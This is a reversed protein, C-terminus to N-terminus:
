KRGNKTLFCIWNNRKYWMHRVIDDDDDDSLMMIIIIIIRRHAEFSKIVIKEHYHFYNQRMAVPFDVYVCTSTQASLGFCCCRFFFSFFITCLHNLYFNLLEFIIIWTSIFINQTDNFQCWSLRFYSQGKTQEHRVLFLYLLFVNM